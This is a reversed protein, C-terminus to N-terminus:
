DIGAMPRHLLCSAVDSSVQLIDDNDHWQIGTAWLGQFEGAIRFCLTFSRVVVVGNLM